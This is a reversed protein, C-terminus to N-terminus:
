PDYLTYALKVLAESMNLATNAELTSVNSVGGIPMSADQPQRLGADVDMATSPLLLGKSKPLKGSYWNSENQVIPM